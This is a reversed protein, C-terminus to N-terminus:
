RDSRVIIFLNILTIHLHALTVSRRTAGVVLLSVEVAALTAVAVIRVLIVTILATTSLIPYLRKDYIRGRNLAVQFYPLNDVTFSKTLFHETNVQSLKISVFTFTFVLKKM